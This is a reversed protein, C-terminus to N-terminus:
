GVKLADFEDFEIVVLGEQAKGLVEEIEGRVYSFDNEILALEWGLESSREAVAEDSFHREYFDEIEGVTIKGYSWRPRVGYVEKYSDSYISLEEGSAVQSRREENTM